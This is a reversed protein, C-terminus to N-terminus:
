ALVVCQLLLYYQHYGRSLLSHYLLSVLETVLNVLKPEEDASIVLVRRQRVPHTFQQAFLVLVHDSVMVYECCPEVAPLVLMVWLAM